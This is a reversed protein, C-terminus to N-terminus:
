PGICEGALNTLFTIDKPWTEWAKSFHTIAVAFDRKKYADAGLKKEAEAAKKAAADENDEKDAEAGEAEAMKVDEREHVKSSSAAPAPRASPPPSSPPSAASKFVGPPVEDSGEPRSFGQMDLGMLAGLVDIMRPDSSLLSQALQPNQQILQLQVVHTYAHPPRPPSESHLPCVKQMFSADALHKATRPNAALKAFLGPDSFMNGFGLADAGDGREDAEAHDCPHSDRDM